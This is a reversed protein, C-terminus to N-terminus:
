TWCHFPVHGGLEPSPAALSLLSLLPLLYRHSRSFCLAKFPLARVKLHTHENQYLLGGSCLAQAEAWTGAPEFCSGLLKCLPFVAVFIGLPCPFRNHIKKGPSSAATAGDAGVKHPQCPAPSACLVGRLPCAMSVAPCRAPFCRIPRVVFFPSGKKRVREEM